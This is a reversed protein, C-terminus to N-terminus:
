PLEKCLLTFIVVCFVALTERVHASQWCPLNRCDSHDTLIPLFKPRKLYIETSSYVTELLKRPGQCRPAVNAAIKHTSILLWSALICSWNTTQLLTKTVLPGHKPVIGRVKPERQFDGFSTISLSQAIESSYTM